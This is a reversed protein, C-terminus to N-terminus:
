EGMISEFAEHTHSDMRLLKQRVVEKTMEAAVQVVADILNDVSNSNHFTINLTQKENENTKQM